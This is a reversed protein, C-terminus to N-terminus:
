YEEELALLWIECGYFVPVILTRYIRVELKESLIYCPLFIIIIKFTLQLYVCMCVYICVYMHLLCLCVCWSGFVFSSVTHM